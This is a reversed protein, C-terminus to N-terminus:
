SWFGTHQYTQVNLIGGTMRGTQFGPFYFWSFAGVTGFSCVTSLPTTVIAGTRADLHSGNMYEDVQQTKRFTKMPQQSLIMSGEFHYLICSQLQSKWMEHGFIRDRQGFGWNKAIAMDWFNGLIKERRGEWSTAKGLRRQSIGAHTRECGALHCHGGFIRDKSSEIKAAEFNLHCTLCRFWLNQSKTKFM